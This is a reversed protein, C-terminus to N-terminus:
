VLSWGIKSWKSRSDSIALAVARLTHSLDPPCMTISWVSAIVTISTLVPRKTPLRSMSSVIVLGVQLGHLLDGVLELQQADAADDDNVKDVHLALAVALLHELREVVRERVVLGAGSNQSDRLQAKHLHRPFAHPLVEVARERLRTVVALPAGVRLVRGRDAVLQEAVDPPQRGRGILPGDDDASMGVDSRQQRVLLGVGQRLDLAFSLNLDEDLGVRGQVDLLVVDDHELKSM